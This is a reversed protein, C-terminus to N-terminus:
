LPPGGLVIRPYHPCARTIANLRRAGGGRAGGFALSVASNVRLSPARDFLLASRRVLPSASLGPRLWSARLWNVGPLAPGAEAQRM